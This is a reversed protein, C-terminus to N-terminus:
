LNINGASTEVSLPDTEMFGNGNRKKFPRIENERIAEEQKEIVPPAGSIGVKGFLSTIQKCLKELRLLKGKFGRYFVIQFLDFHQDTWQKKYESEGALFDIRTIENEIAEQIMMSILLHGVGYRDFGPNRGMQIVYLIGRFSISYNASVIEDNMSLFRLFLNEGDLMKKMIERHFRIYKESKFAEGKDGWRMLNLNILEDFGDELTIGQHCMVYKVDYEKRLKKLRARVNYRFKRDRSGFFIDWSSPLDAYLSSSVKRSLYDSEGGFPFRNRTNRLNIVDFKMSFLVNRLFKLVEQRHEDLILFDLYDFSLEDDDCLFRLERYPVGFRSKMRKIMFPTIAVVRENNFFVIVRIAYYPGYIKIWTEVFPWSMHLSGSNIEFFLRQWDSSLEFFSDIDRIISCKM